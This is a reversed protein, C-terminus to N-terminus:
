RSARSSGPAASHRGGMAADRGRRRGVHRRRRPRPRAAARRARRRRRCRRAGSRSAARATSSRARGCTASRWRSSTPAGGRRRAPRSTAFRASAVSIGLELGILHFPKSPRTGAARRRRCGTSRFCRRVYEDGAALTVYVGWRLDRGVSSSDRHVSPAVEVMGRRALVGGEDAPRLVSALDDTSSPPFLGDDPPLLGTANFHRGDRDGVEDRGLIFQVDAPQAQGQRRGRRHRLLGLDDGADLQPIRTSVQHGQGRRGGRGAARAWDVMDCILAPQDGYALSYVVGAAKAREALLPGVLADTEVNVMVLHKGHEIAALAHRIGAPPSGTAEILVDLEPTRVLADADDTVCTTDNAAAAALTPAAFQETPWGVRSLADRAPYMATPLALLMHGVTRRRHWSCRDLSAPGIIGVRVPQSARQRLLSVPEDETWLALILSSPQFNLSQDTIAALNDSHCATFEDATFLIRGTIM